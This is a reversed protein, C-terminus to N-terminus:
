AKTNHPSGLLAGHMARCLCCALWLFLYSKSIGTDSRLIAPTADMWEVGPAGTARLNSEAFQIVLDRVAEAAYAPPFDGSSVLSCVLYVPPETAEPEGLDDGSM